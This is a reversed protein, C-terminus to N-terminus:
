RVGKTQSAAALLDAMTTPQPSPPPGGLTEVATARVNLGARKALDNVAALSTDRYPQKRRQEMNYVDVDQQNKWRDIGTDYAYRREDRDAEIGWRLRNEAEIRDFEERRRAENERELQLAERAAADSSAIARQSANNQRNASYISAGASAGAGLGLAIAAGTAIAM